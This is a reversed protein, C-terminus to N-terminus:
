AALHEKTKLSPLPAWCYGCRTAKLMVPRHCEPCKGMETEAGLDLMQVLRTWTTDLATKPNQSEGATAAGPVLAVQKGVEGVLTRLQSLDAGSFSLMLNNM